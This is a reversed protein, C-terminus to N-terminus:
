GQKIRATLQWIKITKDSSGSVLLKGDPSLALSNVTGSHGTLTYLIENTAIQWIKITRDSSGSFLLKGDHSLAISKVEDSHGNLTQLLKGTLLHWIKITTDTSGTFLLQGDRSMAISKVEGTHGTLTRLPDGTHPNWLRIKSDSSGSALISGDPSIAVAHVSSSHWLTCIRDGKHLNWIKIKNSGSALIQGDPSIDVVNVPRQHGLLTHILQGTQLHWVTVNSKPHQCSGVALFNGDPSIAVSSVEGLNGSITRIQKGTQLNWINITQDACGSVVTEGDPSIAVSAVKGSHDTLTYILEPSELHRKHKLTAIAQLIKETAAVSQRDGVAIFYEQLKYIYEEDEVNIASQMAELANPFAQTAVQRLELWTNISYDVQEAAWTRDPLHSLSQALQLALEPVWYRREKALAQYVQQYGAAYVQLINDESMAQVTPLDLRDKLFSPLLEPLLPPVDHHVLHYADAVWAAVLCHCTILVQCFKAIDEQNIQYKLSLKSIDIGKAQWKETKELLALNHVNDGGLQNIEELDEGLNILEDRIKKWELARSKAFEQLIEKYPLRSITKYFYNEQGLGWYAIRFNLYDGDHDSELILIPETKLLSFLAKISSESHFRKSDWAGALFETPRTPHHLSYNTNIFERIGEALIREVESIEEPYCDFQDFKIQPPALFIKLPINTQTNHTELIQSPYLRLPWSDLVKNVEPLQLSTDRQQQAIQIQTERQYVALQQQLLKEQQFGDEASKGNTTSNVFEIVEEIFQPIQSNTTTLGEATRKQVLNVVVPAFELVLQILLRLGQEM